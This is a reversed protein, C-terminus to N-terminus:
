AYRWGYIKCNVTRASGEATGVRVYLTGDTRSDTDVVTQKALHMIKTTATLAGNLAQNACLTTGGGGAATFLGMTATTVAASPNELTVKDILYRSANVTIATDTTASNLDVADTSALLGYGPLVGITDRAASANADDLLSRGFSTITAEAWTDIGTTYAIRDAVTGLAAISTLTADFAQINTGIVLGLATRAASATKTEIGSATAFVADGSTLGGAADVPAVNTNATGRSVISVVGTATTNFMFGTTLLSLAQEASLTGNPTQVIYTADTPAGGSGNTGAPGQPGACTIKSFAPLSTGPSANEAYLSSAAAEPNLLTLSTSSPVSYVKMYGWFSVYVIQNATLFDTSTTTNVTVTGGEAPMVPQASPAYDAVFTLASVGDEGDAGAAGDAGAPGPVAVSLPEDCPDCCTEASPLTSAM